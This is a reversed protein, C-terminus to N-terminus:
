NHRRTLQYVYKTTPRANPEIIRAGKDSVYPLFGTYMMHMVRKVTNIMGQPRAVDNGSTMMTRNTPENAPAEMIAFEGPVTLSKEDSFFRAKNKEIQDMPGSLPGVQLNESSRGGRIFPLTDGSASCFSKVYKDLQM